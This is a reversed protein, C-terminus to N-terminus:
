SNVRRTRFYLEVVSILIIFLIFDRWSLSRLSSLALLVTASIGLILGSRFSDVLCRKPTDKYRLRKKQLRYFVLTFLSVLMILVDIFWFTVGGPGLKTPNTAVLSVVFLGFSIVLSVIIAAVIHKTKDKSTM